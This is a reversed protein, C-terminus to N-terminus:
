RQAQQSIIGRSTTVVWGRNRLEIAEVRGAGPIEAGPEVIVFDSPTRVLAKGGLISQLVYGELPPQERGGARPPDGPRSIAGVPTRDVPMPISATIVADSDAPAVRRASVRSDDSGPRAGTAPRAFIMLHEAGSFKPERAPAGLMRAAFVATVISLCVGIIALAKDSIM